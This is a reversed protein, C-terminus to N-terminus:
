IFSPENNKEQLPTLTQRLAHKARDYHRRATGLTVKMVKAAEDITMNEYFVLHAVQRQRPSLRNVAARIASAAEDDIKPTTEVEASGALFELNMVRDFWRRRQHDRAANLIVRFLWTRFTSRGQFRAGRGELLRLYVTQLVEEAQDRNGCCAVAWGYSAPHLEALATRLESSDM